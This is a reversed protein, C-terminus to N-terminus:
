IKTDSSRCWRVAKWNWKFERKRKKEKKKEKRMEKEREAHERKEREQQTEDRWRTDGQLGTQFTERVNLCALM